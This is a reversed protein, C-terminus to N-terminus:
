KTKIVIDGKALEANVQYLAQDVNSNAQEGFIEIKIRDKGGGFNKQADTAYVRYRVATQTGDVNLIGRGEFIGINAPQFALWNIEQSDLYTTHCNQAKQVNACKTGTKYSIFFDSNPHIQNQKNYMVHLGFRLKNQQLENILGPLRDGLAIAPIVARRGSIRADNPGYVVLFDSVKESWNGAFDKARMTIKFVGSPFDSGFETYAGGADLQM